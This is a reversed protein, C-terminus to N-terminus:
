ETEEAAVPSAALARAAAQALRYTTQGIVARGDALRILVAVSARGGRTGHRLLAVREVMGAELRSRDIDSFAGDGDPYVAIDTFDDPPKTL